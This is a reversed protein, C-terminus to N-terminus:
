FKILKRNILLIRLELRKVGHAHLKAVEDLIIIAQEKSSVDIGNKFDVQFPVIGNPKLSPM